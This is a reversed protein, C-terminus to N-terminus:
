GGTGARYILIFLFGLLPGEAKAARRSAKPIAHPLPQGLLLPLARVEPLNNHNPPSPPAQPHTLTHTHQHAPLPPLASPLRQSKLALLLSCVVISSVAPLAGAAAYSAAGGPAPASSCQTSTGAGRGSSLHSGQSPHIGARQMGKRKGCIYVSYSTAVRTGDGGTRKKGRVRIHKKNVRPHPHPLALKFRHEARNGLTRPGGRGGAMQWRGGSGAQATAFRPSLLTPRLTRRRRGREPGQGPGGGRAAVQPVSPM